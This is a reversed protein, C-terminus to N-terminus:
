SASAPASPAAPAPPAAPAAPAAAAAPTPEVGVFRLKGDGVTVRIVSGEPYAGRLVEESLPDEVLRQIARRLPRAGFEPNYGKDILFEKAEDTSSSRRGQAPAAARDRGRM